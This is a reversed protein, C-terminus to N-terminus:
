NETKLKRDFIGWIFGSPQFRGFVSVQFSFVIGHLNFNRRNVLRKSLQESMAM